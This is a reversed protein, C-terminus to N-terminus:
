SKVRNDKNENTNVRELWSYLNKWTNFDCEDDFKFSERKQFYEELDRLMVSKVREDILEPYRKIFEATESTIYTRRGLAYRLASIIMDKLDRVDTDKITLM